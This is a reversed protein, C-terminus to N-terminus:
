FIQSSPFFLPLLFFFHPLYTLLVSSLLLLLSAFSVSPSWRVMIDPILPVVEDDEDFDDGVLARVQELLEEDTVDDDDDDNEDVSSLLDSLQKEEDKEKDGGGGSSSSFSRAARSWLLRTTTDTYNRKFVDDSRESTVSSPVAAVNCCHTSLRLGRLAALARAVRMSSAVPAAMTAREREREREREKERKRRKLM